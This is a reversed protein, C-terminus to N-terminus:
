EVRDQTATLAIRWDVYGTERSWFGWSPASGWRIGVTWTPTRTLKAVRHFTSPSVWNVCRPSRLGALTEEWYGGLITLFVASWPHSHLLPLVDAADFRHLRLGVLGLDLEWVRLGPIQQFLFPGWRRWGTGMPDRRLSRWFAGGVVKALWQALWPGGGFALTLFLWSDILSSVVDSLLLSGSAEVVVVDVLGAVVAAAGGAVAVARTTPILVGVGAGLVVAVVAWRWGWTRQIVDKLRMLGGIAFFAVYPTWTPGGYTAAAAAAVCLLAYACTHIVPGHM